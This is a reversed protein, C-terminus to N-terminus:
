LLFKALLYNVIIITTCSRVVAATSAKGVEIAGGRVFYGEYASISSIIFSFSVAKILMFTVFFPQTYTRVGETFQAYSVIDTLVGALIGGVHMLFAAFTVLIPVAILAGIIKPFILYSASNVGMVELADIQETVRMTGIESTINSGVKGALILCTITPAMELLASASVVNGIVTKPYFGSSIQYATQVTGVAGIFLSIIFVIMVSGIGMAVVEILIAELYVKLKETLTFTKQLLLLYRGIHYFPQM